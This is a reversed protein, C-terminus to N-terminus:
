PWPSSFCFHEHPHDLWSSLVGKQNEATGVWFPDKDCFGRGAPVGISNSSLMMQQRTAPWHTDMLPQFHWTRGLHSALRGPHHSAAHRWHDSFNPCGARCGSRQTTRHGQSAGCQTQPCQQSCRLRTGPDQNPRRHASSYSQTPPVANSLNRSQDEWNRRMRWHSRSWCRQPALSSELTTGNIVVTTTWRKIYQAETPVTIRSRISCAHIAALIFPLPTVRVFAATSRTLGASKEAFIVIAPERRQWWTLAFHHKARTVIAVRVRWIIVTGSV